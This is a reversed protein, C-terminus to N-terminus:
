EFLKKVLKLPATYPPYKIKMHLYFPKKMMSKEHTFTDFSWKGHYNGMGSEGIGGFPLYPSTIQSLTDNICVSGSSTNKLISNINKNNKSFFYLALPKPRSNIFSIVKSLDNYVMIPLIPGFIEDEMIPSDIPCNEILTPSIYLKEWDTIGGYLIDGDKLYSSLRNFNRSNVIRGYYESKVPDEGFFERVTKKFLNLFDNKIKEHIFLYDPAVCTQGCNFFKGWLLSKVAVDLNVSEDIISPSKGGLELTLSTLNKSAAEMIVKGIKTSGTFFIHDFKLKLLSTTELVGGSITRVYFPDFAEKIIKCIVKDCNPSLESPKIIACNGAAIAGILPALVLQIPYNWPGIILITGLPEKVIVSKGPFHMLPNRVKKDKMWKKLHAITYNIESMVFGIESVYSEFSSKHLDKYLAEYILEENKIIVEKLRKLKDIRFEYDKTNGKLFYDRQANFYEIYNDM